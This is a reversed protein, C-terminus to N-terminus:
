CCDAHDSTEVRQYTAASLWADCSEAHVMLRGLASGVQLYRRYTSGLVEENLATMTTIAFSLPFEALERPARGLWRPIWPRSVCAYVGLGAEPQQSCSRVEVATLKAGQSRLWPMLRDITSPPTLPADQLPQAECQVEGSNRATAAAAGGALLAAGVSGWGLQQRDDCARQAAVTSRLAAPLLQHASASAVASARRGTGHWIM